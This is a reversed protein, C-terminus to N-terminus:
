VKSRTDTSFTVISLIQADKYSEKFQEKAHAEDIALCQYYYELDKDHSEKFRIAYASIM